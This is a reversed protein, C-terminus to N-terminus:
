EFVCGCNYPGGEGTVLNLEGCACVGQDKEAIGYMYPHGNPTFVLRADKFEYRRFELKQEGSIDRLAKLANKYSSFNLEEVSAIRTVKSDFAFNDLVVAVQDDFLFQGKPLDLQPFKTENVDIRILFEDRVDVELWQIKVKYRVKYSEGSEWSEIFSEYPTIHADFYSTSMNNVKLFYDKWIKFYSECQKGLCLGASSYKDKKCGANSFALMIFLAFLSVRSYIFNM